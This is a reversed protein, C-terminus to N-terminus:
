FRRGLRLDIAHGAVVLYSREARAALDQQGRGLVDRFVRGSPYPPAIGWGVEEGVVITRAASASAADVVAAIEDDLADADLAGAEGDRAFRLAMRHALWTGLSDVLLTQMARAECLLASLSPGDPRATEVLRWSAPRREVHRAIRRRWAPDGDDAAATAVYTIEGGAEAALVEAFRSKGSRVPGTVFTLPM